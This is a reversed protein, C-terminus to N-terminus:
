LYLHDQKWLPLHRRQEGYDLLLQVPPRMRRRALRMLRWQIETRSSKCSQAPPGGPLRERAANLVPLLYVATLRYAM